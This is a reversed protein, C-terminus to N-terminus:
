RAMVKLSRLFRDQLCKNGHQPLSLRKSYSCLTIYAILCTRETSSSMINVACSWLTPYLRRCSVHMRWSPVQMVCIAACTCALITDAADYQCCAAEGQSKLSVMAPCVLNNPPQQTSCQPDNSAPVGAPLNLDIGLPQTEVPTYFSYHQGKNLQYTQM